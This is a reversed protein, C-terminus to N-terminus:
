ESAGIVDLLPAPLVQRFVGNRSEMLRLEKPAENAFAARATAEAGWRLRQGFKGIMDRWIPVAAHAAVNIEIWYTPMQTSPGPTTPDAAAKPM